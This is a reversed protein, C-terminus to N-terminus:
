AKKKKKKKIIFNTILTNKYKYKNTIFGNLKNDFYEMDM